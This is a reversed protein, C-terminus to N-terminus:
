APATSSLYGKVNGLIDKICAKNNGDTGFYAIDSLSATMQTAFTYDSQEIKYLHNNRIVGYEYEGSSTGSAVDNSDLYLTYPTTSISFWSTSDDPDTFYGLKNTNGDYVVCYTNWPMISNIDIATYESSSPDSYYALGVTSGEIDYIVPYTTGYQLIAPNVTTMESGSPDAFFGTGSTSDYVLGVTGYIPILDNLGLKIFDQSDDEYGLLGSSSRMLPYAGEPFEYGGGGGNGGTPVSEFLQTTANYYAPTSQNVDYVMLPYGGTVGVVSNNGDVCHFTNNSADYTVLKGRTSATYTQNSAGVIKAGESTDMLLNLNKAIAKGLTDISTKYTVPTNNETDAYNILVYSNAAAGGANLFNKSTLESIKM